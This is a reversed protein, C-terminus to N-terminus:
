PRCKGRWVGHSSMCHMAVKNGNFIAQGRRIDGQTIQPLLEAIRNRQAEADINVLSNLEDIGHQVTADYKALKDRVLEVRLSSIATCHKLSSLLELGLNEDTSYQFPGLLQHLELPGSSKVLECLKRLQDTSLHARSIAEAASSRLGFSSDPSVAVALLDFQWDSLEPLKNAITAMAEVRLEIPVDKDEVVSLLADHLSPAIPDSAPFSRAAGIAFPLFTKDSSHIVAVLANTWEVPTHELKAQAIARLALKRASGSLNTDSTSGALLQQISSDSSFKVLLGELLNEATSSTISTEKPLSALRQRFWAALEAGWEPHRAVLWYATERFLDNDSDLLPVVDAPEVHGGPMQDLAILAATVTAPSKNSLGLRTSKPEALEILAYIISHRLSRDNATAASALLRSITSKDGIRGLAEAAISVLNASNSHLLDILQPTSLSDRNLSIAHLAAQRVHSDPHQLAKRVISRSDPSDIQALAWIRALNTRRSNALHESLDTSPWTAIDSSEFASDHQLQNALFQKLDASSSRTVFEQTAHRHVEPRDDSLLSWLSDIGLDAWKINKGWPDPLEKTGIKRVRYIGGLVDPKELQSTPCCWKYWGGTDVILLNGDADLLVDTPHFDVDDSTVFDSDESVFSAGAQKLVHRSVKHTNFQCVFLNGYYEPGFTNSEFCVLGCPAAAGMHVLVPMLEGTRPHGELVGNEKGYVGGYVAHALGDRRGDQPQVIFTATFFREGEPTSVTNVLNDMGGTVVPEINTGDPRCRFIHSARTKWESGM